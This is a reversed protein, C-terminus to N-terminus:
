LDTGIATSLQRVRGKKSCLELMANERRVSILTFLFIKSEMLQLFWVKVRRKKCPTCGNRSKRHERRQMTRLKNESNWGQTGAADDMPRHNHLHDYRTRHVDYTTPPRIFIPENVTRPKAICSVGSTDSAGIV